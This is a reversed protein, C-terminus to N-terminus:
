EGKLELPFAAKIDDISTPELAKLPETLDRLAQKEVKIAEVAVTDGDELARMVDRDLVAFKPDRAERIRDLQIEKAKELDHTIVGDEAKWADRFSRDTPVEDEVLFVINTADAPISKEMIHAEYKAKTLPGLVREVAEKSAPSVISVGGDPRTYAIKNM